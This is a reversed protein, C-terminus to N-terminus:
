YCKVMHYSKACQMSIRLNEWLGVGQAGQGAGEAGRGFGLGWGINM